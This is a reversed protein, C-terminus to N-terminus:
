SARLEGAINGEFVASFPGPRLFPTAPQGAEVYLWLNPVVMVDSQKGDASTFRVAFGNTEAARSLPPLSAFVFALLACRVAARNRRLTKREYRVGFFKM